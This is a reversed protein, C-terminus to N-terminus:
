DLRRSLVQADNKPNAIKYSPLGGKPRANLQMSIKGIQTEFKKISTAHSVM